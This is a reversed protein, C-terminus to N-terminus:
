HHYKKSFFFRINQIHINGASLIYKRKTFTFTLVQSLAKNSLILILVRNIFNLSRISTCNPFILNIPLLKQSFTLVQAIYDTKVCCM